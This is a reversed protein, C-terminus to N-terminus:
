LVLWTKMEMKRKISMFTQWQHSLKLILSHNRREIKMPRNIYTTIYYFIEQKNKIKKTL